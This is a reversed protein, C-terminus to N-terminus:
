SALSDKSAQIFSFDTESGDVRRVWFGSTSFGAPHYNRKRLFVKVGAGIKSPGGPITADYRQLLALLDYHDAATTIIDGDAYGALMQRFHEIAAEQTPWTRGNALKIPKAAM